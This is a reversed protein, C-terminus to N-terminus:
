KMNLSLEWVSLKEFFLKKSAIEKAKYRLKGFSIDPSLSSTILFINGNKNLHEKAGKLFKIILENGKEGGTTAIRSDMPEKKDLPLYPPNFIIIDFKGNVKEFLDSKVCNFGVGRCHKIANFNVDTGLINNKKIGVDLATKLNIGGGCGVELFSLNPNKNLLKPLEKELTESMLYSDEEPSYIEPM